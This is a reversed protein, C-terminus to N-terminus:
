RLVALANAIRNTEEETLRVGKGADRNNLRELLARIDEAPTSETGGTRKTSWTLVLLPAELNADPALYVAPHGNWGTETELGAQVSLDAIGVDDRGPIEVGQAALMSKLELYTITVERDQNVEQLTTTVKVM